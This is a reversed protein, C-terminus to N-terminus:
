PKKKILFTNKDCIYYLWIVVPISVFYSFLFILVGVVGGFYITASTYAM